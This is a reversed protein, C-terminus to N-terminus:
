RECLEVALNKRTPESAKGSAQIQKYKAYQAYAFSIQQYQKMRTIEFPNKSFYILRSTNILPEM